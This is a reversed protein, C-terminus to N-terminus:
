PAAIECIFARELECSRDSWGDVIGGNILDVCNESETATPEALAWRTHGPPNGDVWVFEGELALDSLGIWWGAPNGETYGSLQTEESESALVLLDGGRDQCAVQAATWTLATECFAYFRNGASALTCGDCTVNLESWEDVLTNCDNDIGDCLERNGPYAYQENDDCDDGITVYGAPQGCLLEGSDPDGHGDMDADLFWLNQQDPPCDSTTSDGSSTATGSTTDTTM